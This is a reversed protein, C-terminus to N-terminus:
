KSPMASTHMKGPPLFTPQYKTEIVERNFVSLM